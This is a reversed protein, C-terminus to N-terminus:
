LNNILKDTLLDIRKHLENIHRTADRYDEDKKQIEDNKRLMEETLKRNEEIIDRIDEEKKLMHQFREEMMSILDERTLGHYNNKKNNRVCGGSMQGIGTNDGINSITGCNGVVGKNEGNVINNGRGTNCEPKLMSGNGTLLWESSINYIESIKALLEIGANMRNNLIESFKSTSIGINKSIEAKNKAIKQSLIFNIAELFRSNILSKNMKLNNKCLIESFYKSLESNGYQKAGYFM